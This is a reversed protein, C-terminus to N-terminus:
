QSGLYEDFEECFKDITMMVMQAPNTGAQKALVVPVGGETYGYLMADYLNNTSLEKFRM